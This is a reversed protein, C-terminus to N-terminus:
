TEKEISGSPDPQGVGTEHGVVPLRRGLLPRTVVDSTEKMTRLPM